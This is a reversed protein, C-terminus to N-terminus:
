FYKVVGLLITHLIETLMDKHIDLGCIGLLPNIRDDISQGELLIDLENQLCATIDAESLTPKGATRKWFTKGLELLRIIIVSTVADRAGSQSITSRVKEIGDSLM